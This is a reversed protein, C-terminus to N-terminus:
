EAQQTGDHRRESGRRQIHERESEWEKVKSAIEGEHTTRKQLVSRTKLKKTSRRKRNVEHSANGKLNELSHTRITPAGALAAVVNSLADERRRDAVSVSIAPLSPVRVRHREEKREGGRGREWNKERSAGDQPRREGHRRRSSLATECAPLPLAPALSLV